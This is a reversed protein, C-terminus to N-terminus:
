DLMRWEFLELENTFFKPKVIIGQERLITSGKKSFYRPSWIEHRNKDLILLGSKNSKMFSLVDLPLNKKAKVSDYKLISSENVDFELIIPVRYVSTIIKEREVDYNNRLYSILSDSSIHYEGSIDNLNTDTSYPGGLFAHVIGYFNISLIATLILLVKRTKLRGKTFRLIYESMVILGAAQILISYPQLNYIYRFKFYRGIFFTYIIVVSIFTLFISAFTKNKQKIIIHYLTAAISSITFFKSVAGLWFNNNANNFNLLATLWSTNIVLAINDNSSSLTLLAILYFIAIFVATIIKNLNSSFKLTFYFASFLGFILVSALITSKDSIFFAYYLFVALFLLGGIVKTLVLAKTQSLRNSIGTRLLTKINLKINGNDRNIVAGADPNFIKEFLFDILYLVSAIATLTLLVFYPYERTYVGTSFIHPSLAWLAAAVTAAKVSVRRTLQYLPIISIVNVLMAALRALTLKFLYSQPDFLKFMLVNLFTVIKGREYNLQGSDIFESAASLHFNEDVYPTPNNLIYLIRIIVGVVIVSLILVKEYGHQTFGNKDLKFNTISSFTNKNTKISYAIISCIAVFLLLFIASYVMSVTSKSSERVIFNLLQNSFLLLPLAISLFSLLVASNKKYIFIVVTIFIALLFLTLILNVIPRYGKLGDSFFEKRQEHENFILYENLSVFLKVNGKTVTFSVPANDLEPSFFASIALSKDYSLMIDSVIVNINTESGNIIFTQNTKRRPQMKMRYSKNNDVLIFDNNANTKSIQARMHYFVSVIDYISEGNTLNKSYVKDDYAWTKNSFVVFISNKYLGEKQKKTLYRSSNNSLSFYSDFFDYMSTSSFLDIIDSTKLVAQANYYPGSNTSVVDNYSYILELPLKIKLDTNGIPHSISIDYKLSEGPIILTHNDTATLSGSFLLLTFFLIIITRM